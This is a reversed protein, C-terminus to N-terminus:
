RGTYKKEFPRAINYIIFAFGFGLEFGIDAGPASGDANILLGIKGAYWVQNMGMVVGFVGFCFAVVGAYGVPFRQPDNWGEIDYNSYKGKRHIFHESLAIAQYIALYYAILNMFNEMFDEFKYFAPICIALTLLNGIISWLARPVKAFKSWFAQACFAMTYMNPVANAVTSLALIIACFEGFGGLSDVALIAYLLGGTGHEDYYSAWAENTDICTIAAAGLIMTFTLPIM